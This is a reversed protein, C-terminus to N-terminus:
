KTIKHQVKKEEEIKVSIYFVKLAFPFIFLLCKETIKKQVVYNQPFFHSTIETKCEM